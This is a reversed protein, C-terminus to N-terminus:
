QKKKRNCIRNEKKQVANNEKERALSINREEEPQPAGIRLANDAMELRKPQTQRRENIGRQQVVAEDFHLAYLVLFLLVCLVCAFRNLSVASNADRRARGGFM